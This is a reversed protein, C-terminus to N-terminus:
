KRSDCRWHRIIYLWPGAPISGATAVLPNSGTQEECSTELASALAIIGIIALVVLLTRMTKMYPFSKGLDLPRIQVSDSITGFNPSPSFDSHLELNRLVGVAADDPSRRSYRHQPFM